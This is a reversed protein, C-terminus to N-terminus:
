LHVGEHSHCHSHRDSGAGAALRRLVDSRKQVSQLVLVTAFLSRFVLVVATFALSRLRLDSVDM